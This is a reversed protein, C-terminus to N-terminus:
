RGVFKRYIYGRQGNAVVTCWFTCSQIQVSTGAPVVAVVSADNDPASRMNVAVNTRSLGPGKEQAPGSDVDTARATSRRAPNEPREVPAYSLIRGGVVPATDAVPAPAAVVVSAPDAPRM